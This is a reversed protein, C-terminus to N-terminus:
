MRRKREVTRKYMSKYNLLNFRSVECINSYFIYHTKIYRDSNKQRMSGKSRWQKHKV